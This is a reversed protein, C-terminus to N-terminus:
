DSSPLVRLLMRIWEIAEERTLSRSHRLNLCSESETRFAFAFRLDSRRQLEWFIEEPTAASLQPDLLPRVEVEAGLRNFEQFCTSIESALGRCLLVDGADILREAEVATIKLIERIRATVALRDHGAHRLYVGLQTQM